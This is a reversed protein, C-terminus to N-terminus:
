SAVSPKKRQQRRKWLYIALGGAVSFSGLSVAVKMAPSFTISTTSTNNGINVQNGDGDIIPSNPGLTTKSGLNGTVDKGGILITSGGFIQVKVIGAPTAITTSQFGVHEAGKLLEETDADQWQPMKTEKQIRGTIEAIQQPTYAAAALSAGLLVLATAAIATRSTMLASENM